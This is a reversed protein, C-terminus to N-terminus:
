LFVDTSPYKLSFTHLIPFLSVVSFSFFPPSLYLSLSLSQSSVNFTLSFRLLPSLPFLAEVPPPDLDLLRIKEKTNKSNGIIIPDHSFNNPYM